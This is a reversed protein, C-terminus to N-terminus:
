CCRGNFALCWGPFCSVVHSSPPALSCGTYGGFRVLSERAAEKAVEAHAESHVIGDSATPDAVPLTDFLGLEFKVRLVDRVRADITSVDIQGNDVMDRVQVNQPSVPPYVHVRPEPRSPILFVTRLAFCAVVV